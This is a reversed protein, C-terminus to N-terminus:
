RSLNLTGDGVLHYKIKKGFSLHSWTACNDIILKTNKRLSDLREQTLCKYQNHDSALVLVDTSFVKDLSDVEKAGPVYKKLEQKSCFPDNLIVQVSNKLLYDALTVSPSLTLDKQNGKYTVGLIAVSKYKKRIIYEAYSLVSSINIEQFDKLLTMNEPNDSGELLYDIALTMKTGGTGINLVCDDLSINKFLAESLKRTNINPYGFSLQRTFDDIMAQIVSTSNIYIEAEKISGLSLTKIRLTEALRKLASLCEQSYGAIPMKERGCIFAEVSWDTSFLVGLYYNRGVIIGSKKLEGVFYREIHGPVFASKFVVLPAIKSTKLHRAFIKATRSAVNDATMNKPNEPIAIIHLYSDKFMGRLNPAVKIRAYDLKPLYGSISWVARQQATPYKGSSFLELQASNLDHAVVNFGGDQLKLMTTYGLYGLGWVSANKNKLINEFLM